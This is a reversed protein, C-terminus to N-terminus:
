VCIRSALKGTSCEDIHGKEYHCKDCLIVGNDPDLIMHPHTKKPKEHHVHLCTEDGMEECIECENYGLKDEQRKLVEKRFTQYESETYYNNSKSDKLISDTRLRFSPCNEKCKDSCYFFNGVGDDKEISYIRNWVKDQTPVFWKNCTKCKVEIGAMGIGTKNKCDRISEIKCFFPYLKLLDKKRRKLSESKKLKTKNSLSKGIKSHRLKEIHEKTLTRGKNALSIKRRQDKTHKLGKHSESLKKIHDESLSGNIRGGLIKTQWKSTNEYQCKACSTIGVKGSKRIFDEYETTGCYKCKRYINKDPNLLKRGIMKNRRNEKECEKCVMYTIDSQIKLNDYKYCKLCYKPGREYKNLRIERGIISSNFGIENKIEKLSYWNYWLQKIIIKYKKPIKSNTKNSKNVRERVSSCKQYNISCCWKNSTTRYKAEKGCGYDCINM